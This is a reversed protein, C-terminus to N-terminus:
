VGFRNRTSNFNQTIEAAELKRNYVRVIAMQNSSFSSSGARSALYFTSNAFSGSTTATTTPYSQASAM